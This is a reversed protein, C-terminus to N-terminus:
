SKKYRKARLDEPYPTDEPIIYVGGISVVGPIRNNSIAKRVMMTTRGHKEAYESVSLYKVPQSLKRFLAAYPASNHMLIDGKEDMEACVLVGETDEWRGDPGNRLIPRKIFSEQRMYFSEIMDMDAKRITKDPLYLMFDGTDLNQVLLIKKSESM